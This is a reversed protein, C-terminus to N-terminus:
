EKSKVTVTEPVVVPELKSEPKTELKPKEVNVEVIEPKTEIPAALPKTAVLTKPEETPKANIEVTKSETVKNTILETTKLLGVTILDDISINTIEFTPKEPFAIFFESQVDVSSYPMIGMSDGKLSLTKQFPTNNKVRFVPYLKKLDDLPTESM